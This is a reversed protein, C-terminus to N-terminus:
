KGTVKDAITQLVIWNIGENADHCKDAQHLIDRAKKKSLPYDVCEKVDDINWWAAIWDPSTLREVMQASPVAQGEPIDIEITIIM